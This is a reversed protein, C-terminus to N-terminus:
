VEVYLDWYDPAQTYSDLEEQEEETALPWTNENM